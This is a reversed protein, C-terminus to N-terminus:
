RPTLPSPPLNPKVAGPGRVYHPLVPEDTVSRASALAAIAHAHPLDLLPGRLWKQPLNLTATVEGAVALGDGLGALVESVSARGIACAELLSRGNADEAACFVEGRRADVLAARPGVHELQMAWLIASLSEVGVVPRGLGLSLGEALAIGVRLGVFSGPGIGVAIRDLSSRAWGARELARGVLPLMREAHAAPESHEETAVLTAGETLAVSGRSSSTELALIRM